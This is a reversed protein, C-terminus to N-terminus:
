KSLEQRLQQAKQYYEPNTEQIRNLYSLAQEDQNIALHSLALYWLSESEFRGGAELAERLNEIAKEYDHLEMEVIGLYLKLDPNQPLQSRFIEGAQEYNNRQYEIFGLKLESNDSEGRTIPAIKNPLKTYYQAYLEASSTADFLFPLSIAIALVAAAALWWYRFPLVKKPKQDISRLRTKLEARGREKVTQVMEQRFQFEKEFDPDSRLESLQQKEEDSIQGMLFFDILPLKEENNM